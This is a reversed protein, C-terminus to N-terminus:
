YTPRRYWSETKDKTENQKEKRVHCALLCLLKFITIFVDDRKETFRINYTYMQNYYRWLPISSVIKEKIWLLHFSQLGNRQSVILLRTEDYHKKKIIQDGRIIKRNSKFCSLTITACLLYLNNTSFTWSRVRLSSLHKTELNYNRTCLQSALFNADRIIGYVVILFCRHFASGFM